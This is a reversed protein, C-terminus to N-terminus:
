PLRDIAVMVLHFRSPDNLVTMDFPTTITGNAAHVNGGACHSADAELSYKANRIERVQGNAM